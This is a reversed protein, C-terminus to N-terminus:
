EDDLPVDLDEFDKVPPEGKKLAQGNKVLESKGSSRESPTKGAEVRGNKIM